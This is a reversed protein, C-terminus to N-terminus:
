QQTTCRHMVVAQHGQTEFHALPTWGLRRYMADQGATFLYLDNINHDASWQEVHRVLARGIGKGRAPPAVFLSGLWPSLHDFQDVDDTVLVSVSGVLTDGDFAVWTLPPSTADDSRNATDIFEARAEARGWHAYLHSWENVHWEVLQEIVLEDFTLLEICLRDM